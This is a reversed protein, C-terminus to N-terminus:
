GHPNQKRRAEALEQTLVADREYAEHAALDHDDNQSFCETVINPRPLPLAKLAAVSVSVTGSIRRFRTDVSESNLLRCLVTLTIQQAKGQTPVVVITHNESVFGRGGPVNKQRIVGAILRRKQRSNSTRQVILADTKIVAASGEDITVFGITDHDEQDGALPKSHKNARVNHAWYLPVETELPFNGTRYREKERNWVFYGTKLSYGYTEITESSSGFLHASESSDPLAWIRDSPTAPVDLMGLAKSVEEFRLLTSTAKASVKKIGHKRVTLVCVDCLVDLFLDSRQEIPDLSVVHTNQLLFRRLSSFYPGGLFSMPIIFCAVGDPKLWRIAQMIFLSYLNVYGSSIVDSFQKLTSKDPRFVRGYPPNVIVADFIPRTPHTLTDRQKISVKLKKRTQELEPRLIDRLLLESLRALAPDIEIGSITRNIVSIIESPRQRSARMDQAIASALPVLFAAGGSAPDLVRHSGLVVGNDRLMKIAHAALHPPTFYASLKKRRGTPMLLAYLSAIWYHRDSHHIAEFFKILAVNSSKGEIASRCISLASSHPRKVAAVLRRLAAVRIKALEPMESNLKRENEQM